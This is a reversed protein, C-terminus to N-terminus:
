CNEEELIGKNEISWKGVVNGNSDVVSNKEYSEAIDCAIRRLLQPLEMQDQFSENDMDIQCVFKM